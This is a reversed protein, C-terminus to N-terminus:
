GLADAFRAAERLRDAQEALHVLTWVPKDPGVAPASAQCLAGTTPSVVTQDIVEVTEIARVLVLNSPWVPVLEERTLM